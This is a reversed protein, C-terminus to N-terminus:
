ASIPMVLMIGVQPNHRHRTTQQTDQRSVPTHHPQSTPMIRATRGPDEARPAIRLLPSRDHIHHRPHPHAPRQRPIRRHEGCIKGPRTIRRQRRRILDPHQSVQAAPQLIAPKIRSLQGAQPHLLEQRRAAGRPIRAPQRLPPQRRQQAAQPAQAHHRLRLARNRYSGHVHQQVAVAPVQSALPPQHGARDPIVQVLRPSEQGPPFVAQRDQGRGLDAPEDRSLGPPAAGPRRLDRDRRQSRQQPKKDQFAQHCRAQLVRHRRHRAPPAAPQRLRQRAPLDRRQQRRTVLVRDRPPPVERHQHQQGPQPQPGALRSGQIQVVDAPPGPRHRDPTLAPTILLQRQRGIGPLRQGTVQPIAQGGASGAAPYEQGRARRAAGQRGARNRRDHPLGAATGPQGRSAGVPQPM